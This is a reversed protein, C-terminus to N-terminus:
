GLLSLMESAGDGCNTIVRALTMSDRMSSALTTLGLRMLRWMVSWADNWADSSADDTKRGPVTLGLMKM